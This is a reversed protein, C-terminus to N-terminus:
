TAGPPSSSHPRPRRSIGFVAAVGGVLIIPVVEGAGAGIGAAVPV